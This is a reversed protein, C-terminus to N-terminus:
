HKIAGSAKRISKREAGGPPLVPGIVGRQSDQTIVPDRLRSAPIRHASIKMQGTPHKILQDRRKGPEAALHRGRASIDAAAITGKGPGIRQSSLYVLEGIAPIVPKLLEALVTGLAGAHQPLHARCEVAKITFQRALKGTICPM